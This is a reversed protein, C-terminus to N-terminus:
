GDGKYTHVVTERKIVMKLEKPLTKSQNTPKLGDEQGKTPIGPYPYSAGKLICQCFIKKRRLMPLWCSFIELLKFIRGNKWQMMWIDGLTCFAELGLFFSLIKKWGVMGSKDGKQWMLKLMKPDIKEKRATKHGGIEKRWPNCWNIFFSFQFFFDGISEIAGVM